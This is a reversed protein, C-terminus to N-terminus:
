VRGGLMENETTPIMSSQCQGGNDSSLSPAHFVIKSVLPVSVLGSGPTTELQGWCWEIQFQIQGYLILPSKGVPKAPCDLLLQQKNSQFLVTCNKSFKM